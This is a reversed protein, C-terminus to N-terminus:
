QGMAKKMAELAAPDMKDGMEMVAVEMGLKAIRPAYTQGITNFEQWCRVGIQQEGREKMKKSMAEAKKSWKEQREKDVKKAAIMEKLGAEYDAMLDRYEEVMPDCAVAAEERASAAPIESTDSREPTSGNSCATFALTASTVLSLISTRM